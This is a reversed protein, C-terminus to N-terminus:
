TSTAGNNLYSKLDSNMYRGPTGGNSKSDDSKVTPEVANLTQNGETITIYSDNVNDNRSRTASHHKARM